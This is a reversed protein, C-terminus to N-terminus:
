VPFCRRHCCRSVIKPDRGLAHLLGESDDLSILQCPHRESSQGCRQRRGFPQTAAAQGQEVRIAAPQHISGSLTYFPPPLSPPLSNTSLNFYTILSPNTQEVRIEAPQHISGPLHVHQRHTSASQVRGRSTGDDDGSRAVTRDIM